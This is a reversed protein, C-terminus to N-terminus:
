SEGAAFLQKVGHELDPLLVAYPHYKKTQEIINVYYWHQM